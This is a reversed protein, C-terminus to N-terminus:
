PIPAGTAITTIKVAVLSNPDPSQVMTYPSVMAIATVV